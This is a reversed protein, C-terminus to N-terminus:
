PLDKEWIGAIYRGPIFTEAAQAVGALAPLRDKLFTLQLGTYEQIISGWFIGFQFHPTKSDMRLGLWRMGLPREMSKGASECECREEKRCYFIYEREEFYLIRPALIREQFCWARSLLPALFLDSPIQNASYTDHGIRTRMSIDVSPGHPLKLSILRASERPNLLGAYSDKAQAAAIVVQAGSYFDAMKAAETEWELKDNQVICFSDIWLYRLGLWRTVKMADEFTRPIKSLSIGHYRSEVNTSVTSIPNSGGWCHSLAAYNPIASDSPSVLRPCYTDSEGVEILRGPAQLFDSSGCVAHTSICDEIWGLVMRRCKDSM